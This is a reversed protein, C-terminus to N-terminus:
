FSAVLTYVIRQTYVGAPTNRSINLNHIMAITNTTNGAVPLNAFPSNVTLTNVTHSFNTSNAGVLISGVYFPTNPLLINNGATTNGPNIKVGYREIGSTTNDIISGGGTGTGALANSIVYTSGTRKLGGNTQSFLQYGNTANTNIVIRYTCQTNSLTSVTGFNCSNTNATNNIDRITMSVSVQESPASLTVLPSYKSVYTRRIRHENTPTSTRAAFGFFNSTVAIAPSNTGTALLVGNLFIDAKHNFYRIEVSQWTSNDLTTVAGCAIGAGNSTTSKTYCIRDQFEDLTFHYGSTTIDEQIPVSKNFAYFWVSDGGTGGGSWFDFKAIFGNAPVHNYNCSGTVGAVANLRVWQNVTDLVATGGLTCTPTTAMQDSFIATNVASSTSTTLAFNGFDLSFTAAGPNVAPIKIMIHTTATNCGSELWFSLATGASSLIRIDACDTRMKFKSILTATNLYIDVQYDNILVGSNNFPYVLRFPGATQALIPVNVLFSLLFIIVFAGQWILQSLNFLNKKSISPM